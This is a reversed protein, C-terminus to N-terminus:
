AVGFGTHIRTAEPLFGLIIDNKDVGKKVLEDAIMVETM